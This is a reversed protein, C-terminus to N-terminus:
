IVVFLAISLYCLLFNPNDVIGITSLVLSISFYLLIGLGFQLFLYGAVVNTISTVNITKLDFPSEDLSDNVNMENFHRDYWEIYEQHKKVIGSIYGRVEQISTIIAVTLIFLINDWYESIIDEILRNTSTGGLIDAQMPDDLYTGTLSAISWVGFHVLFPVPQRFLSLLVSRVKYFISDDQTYEIIPPNDYKVFQDKNIVQQNYWHTWVNQTKYIGKMIGRVERYSTIFAMVGIIPIGNILYILYNESTYPLTLLAFLIFWCGFHIIIYMPNKLMYVLADRTNRLM